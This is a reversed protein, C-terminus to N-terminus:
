SEAKGIGFIVQNNFPFGKVGLASQEILKSVGVCFAENVNRFTSASLCAPIM